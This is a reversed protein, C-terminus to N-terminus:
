HSPPRPCWFDLTAAGIQLLVPFQCYVQCASKVDFRRLQRHRQDFALNLLKLDRMQDVDYIWFYRRDHTLALFPYEWLINIDDNM